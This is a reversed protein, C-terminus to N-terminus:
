RFPHDNLVPKVTYSFVFVIVFEQLVDVVSFILGPAWHFIASVKVLAAFMMIAIAGYFIGIFLM